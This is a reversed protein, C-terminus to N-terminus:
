DLNHRKCYNEWDMKDDSCEEDDDNNFIGDDMKATVADKKTVKTDLLNFPISIIGSLKVVNKEKLITKHLKQWDAKNIGSIEIAKNIGAGDLVANIFTKLPEKKEPEFGHQTVEDIYDMADIRFSNEVALEEPTRLHSKGVKENESIPINVEANDDVRLSEIYVLNRQAKYQLYQEIVTESVKNNAKIQLRTKLDHIPGDTERRIDEEWSALNKFNYITNSSLVNPLEQSSSRIKHNLNCMYNTFSGKKPDFKGWPKFGEMYFSAFASQLADKKNCSIYKNTIRSSQGILFKANLMFLARYTDQYVDSESPNDGRLAVLEDIIRLREEKFSPKVWVSSCPKFGLNALIQDATAYCDSLFGSKEAEAVMEKNEPNLEEESNLIDEKYDNESDLPKKSM